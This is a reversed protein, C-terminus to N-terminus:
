SKASTNFGVWLLFTDSVGLYVNASTTCTLVYHTLTTTLATTGTSTCLQTGSTSDLFLKTRPFGSVKTSTVKMWLNFTVTSGSLLVGATGPVGSATPFQQIIFEGPNLNKIDQSSLTIASGNPATTTLSFAGSIDRAYYTTQGFVHKSECVFFAPLCL